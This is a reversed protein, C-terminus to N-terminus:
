LKIPNNSTGEEDDDDDEEIVTEDDDDENDDEDEEEEEDVDIYKRDLYAVPEQRTRQQPPNPQMHEPRQRTHGPVWTVRNALQQRPPQQQQQQPQQRLRDALNGPSQEINPPTGDISPPTPRLNLNPRQVQRRPPSVGDNVNLWGDFDEQWQQQAPGFRPFRRNFEDNIERATRNSEGAQAGRQVWNVFLRWANNPAYRLLPVSTITNGRSDRIVWEVM